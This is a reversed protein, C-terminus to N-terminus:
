VKKHSFLWKYFDPESYANVWSDHKIGSYESYKVNGNVKLLANYMKRSHEVNVIDDDGGHFIWLPINKIINAKTTDGWGCIPAGAAFKEPYRMLLDYTACGGMSLGTIYIRSEDIPYKLTLENLLTKLLGIEKSPKEPLVPDNWSTYSWWVPDPPCQPALVFCPYQNRHTEDLFLELVHKLQLENDTGREGAGHMFIVLPYKSNINYNKPFLFRYLLSDNGRNYSLKLFESTNM